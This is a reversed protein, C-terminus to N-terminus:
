PLASVSGFQAPALSDTPLRLHTPSPRLIYFLRLVLFRHARTNTQHSVPHHHLPITAHPTHRTAHPTHRTAHPTHRTAHPTPCSPLYPPRILLSCTPQPLAVDSPADEGIRRGVEVDDLDDQCACLYGNHAESDSDIHKGTTQQLSRERAEVFAVNKMAGVGRTV